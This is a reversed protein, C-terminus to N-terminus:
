LFVTKHFTVTSFFLMILSYKVSFDGLSSIWNLVVAWDLVPLDGKWKALCSSPLSANHEFARQSDERCSLRHYWLHFRSRLNGWPMRQTQIYVTTRSGRLSPRVCYRNTMKSWVTEDENLIISNTEWCIDWSLMESRSWGVSWGFSSMSLRCRRWALLELVENPSCLFDFLHTQMIGTASPCARNLSLDVADLLDLVRKAWNHEKARDPLRQRGECVWLSALVPLLCGRIQM